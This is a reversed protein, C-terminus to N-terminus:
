RRQRSLGLVIMSQQTSPSHEGPRKEKVLQKCIHITGNKFNVCDWTLGLIEGQRMGTFLDVFYITEYRHGAIANLFVTVTEDTLVQMEKKVVRPLSCLETPNSKIYGLRMAQDLAGHLVGHLNKISKPALSKQLENYFTQVHHPQLKQLPIFGLEPKIQNKIHAEYAARTYPKIGVKYEKLWTDMWAGLTLKSPEVYTGNEMDSQVQQLQKLAEKQTKAYLSKQKQRGTGPDRGVSYRAEWLKKDERWRISGAGQANRKPM